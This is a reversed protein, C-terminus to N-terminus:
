LSHKPIHHILLNTIFSPSNWSHHPTHHINPITVFTQSQSSHIPKYHITSHKMFSPYHSSHQSNHCIYPITIITHTYIHPLLHLTQHIMHPTFFLTSHSFHNTHSWHHPTYHINPLTIFIQTYSSHNSKHRIIFLTTFPTIFTLCHSSMVIVDYHGRHRRLDGAERNNVWVYIWACILSFMLAGRWQGKHPSNMSVPSNGACLALLASFAEM